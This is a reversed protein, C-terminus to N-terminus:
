EDQHNGAPYRRRDGRSRRCSRNGSGRVTVPICREYAHKMIESIQETSHARVLVEPMKEIGGLEDHAYDPSIEDGVLVESEGVISKLIAVYEKEIKSYSM